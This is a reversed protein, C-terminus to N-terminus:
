KVPIIDIKDKLRVYGELKMDANDSFEASIRLENTGSAMNIDGIDLEITKKMRGKEDYVLIKNDGRYTISYNPNLKHDISITEFGNYTVTVQEISGSEGVAGIVFYLFQPDEIEIEVTVDNPQGPQVM